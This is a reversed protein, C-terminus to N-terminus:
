GPPRNNTHSPPGRPDIPIQSSEVSRAGPGADPGNVASTSTPRTPSTAAIPSVARAPLVAPGTRSVPVPEHSVLGVERPQRITLQQRAASAQCRPDRAGLDRQRTSQDM